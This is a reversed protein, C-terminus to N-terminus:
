AYSFGQQWDDVRIGGTIVKTTHRRRQRYPRKITAEIAFLISGSLVPRLPATQDPNM